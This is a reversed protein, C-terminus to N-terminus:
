NGIMELPSSIIELAPPLRPFEPTGAELQAPPRSHPLPLLYLIRAARSTFGGTGSM